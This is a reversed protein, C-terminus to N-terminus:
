AALFNDWPIKLDKVVIARALGIPVDTGSGQRVPIAAIRGDDFGYLDHSGKGHRIFRVGLNKLKRLFHRFDYIPSAKKYWNM